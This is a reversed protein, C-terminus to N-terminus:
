INESQDGNEQGYPSKRARTKQTPAPEEVEEPEQILVDSDSQQPGSEKKQVPITDTEPNDPEEEGEQNSELDSIAEM